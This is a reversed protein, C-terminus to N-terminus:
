AARGPPRAPGPPRPLDDQVGPEVVGDQPPAVNKGHVRIIELEGAAELAPQVPQCALRHGVFGGLRCHQEPHVRKVRQGPDRALELLEGEVNALDGRRLRHRLVPNADKIFIFALQHHQVAVWGLWATRRAAAPQCCHLVAALRPGWALPDAAIFYDKQLKSTGFQRLSSSSAM